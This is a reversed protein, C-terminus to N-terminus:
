LYLTVEYIKGLKEEACELAATTNDGHRWIVVSPWATWRVIEVVIHLLEDGDKMMEM